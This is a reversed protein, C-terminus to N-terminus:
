LIKDKVEIESSTDGRIADMVDDKKLKTKKKLLHDKINIKKKNRRRKKSKNVQESFSEYKDKKSRTGMVNAKKQYVTQTKNKKNTLELQLKIQTQDKVKIISKLEDIETKLTDIQVKLKSNDERLKAGNVKEQDTGTELLEMYKKNDAKNKKM